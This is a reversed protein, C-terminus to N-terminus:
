IRTFRYVKRTCHDRSSRWYTPLHTSNGNKDRGAGVARSARAAVESATSSCKRAKRSLSWSGGSGNVSRRYLPLNM